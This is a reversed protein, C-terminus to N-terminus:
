GEFQDQYLKSLLSADLTEYYNKSDSYTVADSDESSAVVTGYRTIYSVTPCFTSEDLQLSSSVLIYPSIIIGVDGISNRYGVLINDRFKYDISVYVDITELLKGFYVLDSTEYKGHGATAASIVPNKSAVLIELLSPSLIVFNGFGRKSRSAIRLTASQIAHVLQDSISHTDIHEITSKHSEKMVRTIVANIIESGIENGVVVALEHEMDVAHMSALDSMAEVNLRAQSKLSSATVARSMVSLSNDETYELRFTLAAPATMPQIGVFQGLTMFSEIIKNALKLEYIAVSSLPSNVKYEKTSVLAEVQTNLITEYIVKETGTKNLLLETVVADLKKKFLFDDYKNLLNTIRKSVKNFRLPNVNNLVLTETKNLSKNTM